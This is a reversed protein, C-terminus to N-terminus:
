CTSICFPLAGLVGEADSAAVWIGSCGVPGVSRQARYEHTWIEVCMLSFGCQRHETRQLGLCGGHRDGLWSDPIPPRVSTSRPQLTWYCQSIPRHTLERDFQASKGLSPVECQSLESPGRTSRFNLTRKAGNDDVVNFRTAVTISARIELPTAVRQGSGLFEPRKLIRLIGRLLMHGVVLGLSGIHRSKGVLGTSHAIGLKCYSGLCWVSPEARGLASHLM